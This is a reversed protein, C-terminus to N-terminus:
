NFKDNCFVEKFKLYDNKNEFYFTENVGISRWRNGKRNTINKYCWQKAYDHNWRDVLINYKFFWEYYYEKKEDIYFLEM